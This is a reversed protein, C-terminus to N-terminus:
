LEGRNRQKFNLQGKDKATIAADFTKFPKTLLGTHIHEFYFVPPEDLSNEILEFEGKAWVVREM